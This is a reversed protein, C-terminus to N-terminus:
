HQYKRKPKPEYRITDNSFWIEMKEEVPAGNTFYGISNSYTRSGAVISVHYDGDVYPEKSMALFEEESAGPQIDKIAVRSNNTSTVVVVSDIVDRSHNHVVFKIKQGGDCAVLVLFLPIVYRM